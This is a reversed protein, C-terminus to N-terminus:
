SIGAVTDLIERRRKWGGEIRKEMDEIGFMDELLETESSSLQQGPPLKERTAVAADLGEEAEMATNSKLLYDMRRDWELDFEKM